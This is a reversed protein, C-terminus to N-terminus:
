PWLIEELYSGALVGFDRFNIWQDGQPEGQYLDADSDIPVHLTAAGDTALYAVEEDSLAYSYIHFEDVLGPWYGGAAHGRKGIQVNDETNIQRVTSGVRVGDGYWVITTGDYTGAFHHWDEDMPMINEEWGYVHICYTDANGRRQIDFSKGGLSAQQLSTFGFAPTWGTIQWAPVNAKAWGAITRADNGDIGVNPEVVLHDDVGDLSLAYSGIAGPSVFGPGSGCPDTAHYGYPGSDLFNNEFQYRARLLAANPIQTTILEDELLWDGAIVRLDKENVICDLPEAIDALPKIFSAVCVPPCARIRDFYVTGSGGANPDDRDGFGIYMRKISNFDVGAFETLKIYWEQPTTLTAANIDPHEVVGIRGLTDEMAVYMQERHNTGVNGYVWAASAGLGTIGFNNFDAHCVALATHSTVAFGAYTCPDMAINYWNDAGAGNADEWYSGDSSHFAQFAGGVTRELKVHEPATVGTKNTSTSPGDETERYQFAVGNGPTIFVAAHKSQPSLKERIMVGAKAWPDTPDMRIVQAQISGTGIMPYLGVFYFEDRRGSIDRGHGDVEYRYTGLTPNELVFKVDGDDAPHGQFLMSLSKVDEGAWDSGVGLNEVTNAEIESFLPADYIRHEQGPIPPHTFGDNDFTFAMGQKGLYPATGGNNYAGVETSANLNSGSSGGKILWYVPESGGWVVDAYGDTWVGRMESRDNYDEMNDISICEAMTFSWVKRAKWSDLGAYEDVCWYYTKNLQLPAAMAPYPYCPDTGTYKLASPARDNVDSYRDSFYVWHNVAQMGPLFELAPRRNEVISGDPPNPTSAFMPQWLWMPPIIERGFSPSSWALRAGAGGANEYMHMEIDHLDSDLYIEARYWTMGQQRWAGALGDSDRLLTLEEGDIFLRAGDDTQTSLTYNADEVVELHGVWRVTFGDIDVNPDPSGNGWDFNVSPDVRSMVLTRFYPEQPPPEGAGAPWWHHYMGLLGGAAGVTRFTWVDGKWYYPEPGLSNVEDIRWYYFKAKDFVFPGYENPDFRGKYISPTSTNAAEVAAKDTGIYVDHKAAHEGPGWRLTYTQPVSAEGDYPDPSHAWYQIFPELRNGPIITRTPVGPGQYAVQGHDGGGGEKWCARIYYKEGAFLKVPASEQRPNNTGTTNDFDGPAAWGRIDAILSINAPSEDMSLWLDGDDDTCLWFTYDGTELIHLWGHMMGGYNDGLGAGSDFSTPYSSSDPNSPFRPDAYLNGIATGPIGMFMDQRITGVGPPMTTFCWVDGKVYIGGGIPPPMRNEVEDIRWFYKTEDALPTSLLTTPYNPENRYGKYEPPVPIDRCNADNVDDWNTGIYVDHELSSGTGVYGALWKLVVDTPIFIAENPPTPSFAKLGQIGFTWVDGYFTNGKYDEGDITWAYQQGRVLSRTFPPIASYGVYYRDYGPYPPNGLNADEHRNLVKDYEEHCYGTWKVTTAGPVYDLWTYINGGVESGKIVSGDVPVVASAQGSVTTFSWIPGEHDVMNGDTETVKWYYTTSATLNPEGPPDEPDHEPPLPVPINDVQPLACPDTGFYVKHVSAYDGADWKLIKDPSV